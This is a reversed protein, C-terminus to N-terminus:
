PPSPAPPPTTCSESPGSAATTTPGCDDSSDTPWEHEGEHLWAITVSHFLRASHDLQKAERGTVRKTHAVLDYTSCGLQDAAILKAYVAARLKSSACVTIGSIARGDKHRAACRYWKPPPM